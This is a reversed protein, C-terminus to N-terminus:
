RMTFSNWVGKLSTVVEIKVAYAPSHRDVHGRPRIRLDADARRSLSHTRIGGPAHIDTRRRTNHTTLYLDRRRISWEDLPTRGVTTRRQTHDLFRLFPPARGLQPPPPPQLALFFLPTNTDIEINWLGVWRNTSNWFSIRRYSRRTTVSTVVRLFWLETNATGRFCSLGGCKEFLEWHKCAACITVGASVEETWM